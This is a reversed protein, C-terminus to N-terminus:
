QSTRLKALQSSIWTPDRRCDLVAYIEIRSEAILYYVAFPFRRALMRYFGESQEHIGAHLALTNIDTRLCDLFYLGIGLSQAEYFRYGSRLDNKAADLIRITM